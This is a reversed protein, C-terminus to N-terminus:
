FKIIIQATKFNDVGDDKFDEIGESSLLGDITPYIQGKQSYYGRNYLIPGDKTSIKKEKTLHSLIGKKGVQEVSVM